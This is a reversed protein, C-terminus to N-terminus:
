RARRAGIDAVVRRLDAPRDVVGEGDRLEDDRLRYGFGYRALCVRVGARRATELDIASDGVLLTREPRVGAEGMLHALGDPAPKRPFPGDGGIVRWFFATLGLGDLVKATAGLPKNTLVALPAISRSYELVERIGDYPRTHDLLGRDYIELFRTLAGTIDVNVGAAAFAREVLMRAGDGVMDGIAQEPLPSAGHEALLANAARALDRRSDVLTGDLDFVILSEREV